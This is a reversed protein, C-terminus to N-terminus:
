RLFQDVFIQIWARRGGFFVCSADVDCCVSYAALALLLLLLGWGLIAEEAEEHHQGHKEQWVAGLYGM